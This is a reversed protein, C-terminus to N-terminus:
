SEAEAIGDIGCKCVATLLGNSSHMMPKCTVQVTVIGNSGGREIMSFTIRHYTLSLLNNADYTLSIVATGETQAKLKNYETSGHELRATFRLAAEPDGIELRGRIAGSEALPVNPQTNAVTGALNSTVNTIVPHAFATGAVKATFVLTAGVATVVIDVADYAAAHSTVFDAATDALSDGYTALKTLGGAVTVNATGGTGTLTITDIQLQAGQFGSGPYFGEDLRHNNKWSAELSVHNKLSVYNVGNITCALSAASLLKEPTVAPLEIASPETLKGSAILDAVLKSNARGPGSGVSLSWGEIACGVNMFDVVSSAGPRIQEIYSFNPLEIGDVTPDLPTCTYIRNPDSGSKVVKGLSYAMVWAAFEASLYKEIQGEAMWHSNYVRTAFPHGKGLEGADDETILKPYMNSANLKGLRWIGAVTNATALASQKNKGFGILIERENAPM